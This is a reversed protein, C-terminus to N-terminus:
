PQPEPSFRRKKSLRYVTGGVLVRKPDPRGSAGISEDPRRYQHVRAVENGEHDRYSIMESFTCFPENAAPLSPHRKELTVTTFEGNQAREWFRGSNFLQRMEAPSVRKILPKTM